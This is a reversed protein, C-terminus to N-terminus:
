AKNLCCKKYKKGSGCPCPDNRGIKPTERVYTEVPEFDPEEWNAQSNELRRADRAEREMRRRQRSLIHQEDYFSWPDDRRRWSPADYSRSYARAVDQSDIYQDLSEQQEERRAVAELLPRHRERPFDLLLGALFSPHNSDQEAALIEALWDLTEELEIGGAAEAADLVCEGTEARLFWRRDCDATLDRLTQLAHERKNGFLAPWSGAVWSWLDHYPDERMRTLVGLLGEAAQIGAIAGLMLICHLLGWWDMGSADDSWHDDNELHARLRPVMAPGRRVVEDFLERPVMDELDRVLDFLAADSLDRLEDETFSPLEERDIDFADSEPKDDVDGCAQEHYKNVLSGLLPRTEDLFHEYDEPRVKFAAGAVEPNTMANIMVFCRGAGLHEDNLEEWAKEALSVSHLFGRCWLDHRPTHGEDASLLPEFAFEACEEQILMLCEEALEAIEGGPRGGEESLGLMRQVWPREMLEDPGVAIAALYGHLSVPDLAQPYAAAAARLPAFCDASHRFEQMTEATVPSRNM